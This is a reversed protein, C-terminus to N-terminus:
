LVGLNGNPIGIPISMVGGGIVQHKGVIVSLTSITNQMAINESNLQEAISILEGFLEVYEKAWVKKNLARCKKIREEM